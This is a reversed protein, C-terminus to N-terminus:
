SPPSREATQPAIFRWGDGASLMCTLGRQRTILITWSGSPGALIELLQGTNTVGRVVPHERYRESLADLLVQRESCAIQAKAPTVASLAAVAVPLALLARTVIRRM